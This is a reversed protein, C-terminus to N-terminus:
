RAISELAWRAAGRVNPDSDSLAETLAPVADAADAGISGLVTAAWQRVVPSPHSLANRLAPVAPRGVTVLVSAAANELVAAERLREMTEQGQVLKLQNLEQQAQGLEEQLVTVDSVLSQQIERALSLEAELQAPDAAADAAEEEPLLSEAPDRTLTEVTLMVAEDYRVRLDDLERTKEDLLKSLQRLRDTKEELMTELLRVRQKEMNAARVRRADAEADLQTHTVAWEPVPEVEIPQLPPLHARTTYRFIGVLAALVILMAATLYVGLTLLGNRGDVISVESAM